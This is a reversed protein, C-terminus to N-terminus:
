RRLREETNLLAIERLARRAQRLQREAAEIKERRPEAGVAQDLENIAATTRRLARDVHKGRTPKEPEKEQFMLEDYIGLFLQWPFGAGPDTRRSPDREAHSIFGENNSPDESQARSIRKAPVYIGHVSHVYKSARVAARAMNTVTDRVWRDPYSGWKAAEAAASIHIAHENSGTRDGYSAQSYRVLDVISDSDCLDHYSGPEDRRAIFAAVAEAGGDIAETDAISEATHIVIIGSVSRARPRFQRIRPPHDDLYAM